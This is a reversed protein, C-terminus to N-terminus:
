ETEEDDLDSDTFSVTNKGSFLGRRFFPEVRDTDEERTEKDDKSVAGCYPLALINDSKRLRDAMKLYAASKQSHQIRLKGTSMDAKRSFEAAIFECCRAAAATTSGELAEAHAIEEDSLLATAQVTDAIALRIQALATSLDTEDYTFTV